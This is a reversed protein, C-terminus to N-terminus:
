HTMLWAAVYKATMLNQDNPEVKDEKGNTYDPVQYKGIAIVHRYRIFLNSTTVKRDKVVLVM